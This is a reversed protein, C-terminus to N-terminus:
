VFGYDSWYGCRVYGSCIRRVGVGFSRLWFCLIVFLEM